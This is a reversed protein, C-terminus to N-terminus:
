KYSVVAGDSSIIRYGFGGVLRAAAAVDLGAGAASGLFPAGGFAFVGGRNDFIWYGADGPGAVLAVVDALGITLGQARLEPISGFYFGDGFTHIGGLVDVLWYGLGTSTAVIAVIPAHGIPQGGTRRQPVSGFFMADGFAHVGGFEDAIWYGNGSATIAFGVVRAAGVALGSARREPLSGLYPADGFALVGGVEDLLWYGKGTGTTHIAVVRATGVSQGIARLQPISGHFEAGLAFVGGIRDALWTGGQGAPIAGGIIPQGLPQDRLSPGAHDRMQQYLAVVKQGYETGPSWRGSLEEVTRATGKPNVLDFRPDVLPQATGTEAVSPDAYARLHQIQARVGTRADPFQTPNSPAGFGAFNNYHPPVTDSFNFYGTEFVAQAFAIDGRVGEAAGEEVFLQALQRITIGSLRHSRGTSQFWATIQDAILIARGMIPTSAAHAPPAVAVIPLAVLVAVVVSGVRAPLRRRRRVAAAPVAPRVAPPISVPMSPAM